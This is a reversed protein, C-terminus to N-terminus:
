PSPHDTEDLRSDIWLLVVAIAAPPLALPNVASGVGVPAWWSPPRDRVTRYGITLAAAGVLVLAVGALLAGTTAVTAVLEGDAVVRQPSLYTDLEAFAWRVLRGTGGLYLLAAGTAIDILGALVLHVGGVIRVRRTTAGEGAHIVAESM